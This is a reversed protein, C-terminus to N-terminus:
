QPGIKYTFCTKLAERKKADEAREVELQAIIVKLEKIRTQIQEVSMGM